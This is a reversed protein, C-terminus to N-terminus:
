SQVYHRLPNLAQFDPFCIVPKLDEDSKNRSIRFVCIITSISLDFFLTRNRVIMKIKGAGWAGDNPLPCAIYTSM